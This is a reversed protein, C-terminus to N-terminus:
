NITLAVDDAYADNYNGVVRTSRIEVKVKRTGKPVAGTKDSKILGTRSKRGIETVPGISTSGLPNGDGDEFTALVITSDGEDGVGGLYASLDYRKSGSDIGGGGASVDITQTASSQTAGPGGAFFNKGRGSPGPDQATPFAKAGYQVVTFPGKTTRVLATNPWLRTILPSASAL